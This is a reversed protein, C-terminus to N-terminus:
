VDLRWICQLPFRRGGRFFGGLAVTIASLPADNHDTACANAKAANPEQASITLVQSDSYEEVAIICFVGTFGSVVRTVALRHSAFHVANTGFLEAFPQPSWKYMGETVSDGYTKLDMSRYM